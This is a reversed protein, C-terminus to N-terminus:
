INLFSKIAHTTIPITKINYSEVWKKQEPSNDPHVFNCNLFPAANTYYYDVCYKKSEALVVAINQLAKETGGTAFGAFKICAIKKM